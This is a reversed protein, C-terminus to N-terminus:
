PRTHGAGRVLYKYSTLQEAGVPGRAHLKGTSIGIEGGFGFEGGDAFQTSANHLVIASDVGALFRRAAGADDTIIADTHHSGHRNVHAVAADVGEVMAISIVADLYETSWDAETAETVRPDRAVITADGRIACGAAILADLVPKLHTDLASRDILLSEAAGCVGVRRMKANLVVDRAMAVDAAAHIYVHCNGDEHRLVPVRSEAVVRDILSRGGRPIILDIIGTLGLMVGVAARDTTGLTAVADIPLDAAALARGFCGVIAASSHFSEKGGRLLVANGSKLCLAAADATVNPRSEYIFGILGLPVPVREFALGDPRTWRGLDRALPDPMSAVTRIAEAMAALRAPNLTLRDRSAAPLETALALDRQNAALITEADAILLAAARDLAAVRHDHPVTALVSAAARAATARAIVSAAIDTNAASM